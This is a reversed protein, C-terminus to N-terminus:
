PQDVKAREAGPLFPTVDIPGTGPKEVLAGLAVLEPADSGLKRALELARKADERDGRRAFYIADLYHSWVLMRWTEHEQWGTGLLAYFRRWREFHPPAADIVDAPALPEAFAAYTAGDPLLNRFAPAEVWPSPEVRLPRAYALEAIAAETVAGRVIMSHALRKLEPHAALTSRLYGPYGFLQPNVIALDTRSGDVFPASWLVFFPKYYSVLVAAGPEATALALDYYLRTARFRSLDVEPRAARGHAIPLALTALALPVAVILGRPLARALVDIAVAAFVGAAVAIAAVAPQMYGYYDPNYPDFAMLSRLLITVGALTALMAGALATERRRLLLYLGALASVVLVPGLERMMSFVADLTREDLGTLEQAAVSKQYVKASIVWALEGPTSAGGLAVPAGAITRIPIFLYPLLGLAAFGALRASLKLVAVGGRSRSLAVLRPIAAPLAALMIFHHNALGLGCVFAAIKLAGDGERGRDLAHRALLYFATLVLLAELSYVEARVAQFWWGPAVAATLATAAALLAQLPRPLRPAAYAVFLLAIEFLALTALAGFTASALAVRFAISGVPLLTFPKVLMVYLPHGPPHPIGLTMAAATFEPSDLWYPEPSAALVGLALPVGFAAARAAKVAFGDRPDAV